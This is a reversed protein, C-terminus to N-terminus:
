KKERVLLVWLSIVVSIVVLVFVSLLITVGISKGSSSMNLELGNTPDEYRIDSIFEAYSISEHYNSSLWSSYYEWLAVNSSPSSIGNSSYRNKVRDHIKEYEDRNFQSYFEKWLVRYSYNNIHLYERWIEYHTQFYIIQMFKTADKGISYFTEVSDLLAARQDDGSFYLNQVSTSDGPIQVLKIVDMSFESPYEERTTTNEFATLLSWLILALLAMNRRLQRM